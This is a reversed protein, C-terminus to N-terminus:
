ARGGCAVQRIREIKSAPLFPRLDYRLLVRATYVQHGLREYEIEEKSRRYYKRIARSGNGGKHKNLLPKREAILVVERAYAAKESAFRELIRGSCAFKRRQVTLRYGSGKGIYLCPNKDSFLEYVYFRESM